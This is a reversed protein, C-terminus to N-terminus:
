APERSSEDREWVTSNRGLRARVDAVVTLAAYVLGAPALWPQPRVVDRLWSWRDSERVTGSGETTARMARNGRRVRVLRNVLDKTRRPAAVVTHVSTVERKESPAFLSDLFLDDAQQDPFQDFRERGAQSLAIMGRGFLGTRFVPLRNNIAYYARVLVPRGALDIHRAPFAALPGGPHALADALARVVDTEVVIDGDLYIRPFRTATEDGTNLAGVKGPKALEIVQVGARARAIEATQDSCGNPVVIIEFEGETADSLLGDLCAGISAEENHAAIVVSVM